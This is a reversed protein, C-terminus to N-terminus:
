RPLGSPLQAWPDGEAGVGGGLGDGNERRAGPREGAEAAEGDGSSGDSDAAGLLDLWGGPREGGVSEWGSPDYGSRELARRVKEAESPLGWPDGPLEGVSAAPIATRVPRGELPLEEAGSLGGFQSGVDVLRMTDYSAAVRKRLLLFQSDLARSRERRLDSPEFAKLSFAMGFLIPRCLWIWGTVERIVKDVRAEHQATWLIQTQYKRVQAWRHLLGLPLSNWMRSPAWLNIEDVLVMANSISVFCEGCTCAPGPDKTNGVNACDWGKIPMSGELGYNSFVRRGEEIARLGRKSLAFTKGAGPLGIYGEVSIPVSRPRM